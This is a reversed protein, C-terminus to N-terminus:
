CPGLGETPGGLAGKYHTEELQGDWSDHSGSRERNNLRKNEYMNNCTFAGMCGDGHMPARVAYAHMQVYLIQVYTYLIDM